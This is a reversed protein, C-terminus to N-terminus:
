PCRRALGVFEHMTVLPLTSTLDVGNAEKYGEKNISILLFLSKPSFFM